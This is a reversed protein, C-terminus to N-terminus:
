SFSPSHILQKLHLNKSRAVPIADPVNELFVRYGQSNGEVSKVKGIHVIFARHCRLFFPYARLTEEVRGLTSRLLQRTVKGDKAYVFEVYNDASSICLIADPSVELFDKNNEAMFRITEKKSETGPLRDQRQRIDANMTEAQKLNQKLLYRQRLLTIAMVPIIASALVYLELKAFSILTLPFAGVWVGYALNAIGLMMLHWLAWVIQHYVKWKSETFIKSLLHYGALDNLAIVVYSTIGYGIIIYYRDYAFDSLGFPTFVLLFITLFVGFYLDRKMAERWTLLPYPQNFAHHATMLVGFLFNDFDSRVYWSFYCFEPHQHYFAERNRVYTDQLNEQCGHGM